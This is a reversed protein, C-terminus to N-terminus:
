ITRPLGMRRAIKHWQKKLQYRFVHINNFIFLEKAGDVITFNEAACLTHVKDSYFTNPFPNIIGHVEEHFDTTSLTLIKNITIRGEIKESYDM